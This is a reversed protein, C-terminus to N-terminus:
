GGLAAAKVRAEEWLAVTQLLMRAEARDDTVATFDPLVQCCWRGDAFKWMVLHHGTCSWAELELKAGPHRTWNLLPAELELAVEITVGIDLQSGRPQMLRLVTAIYHKRLFKGDVLDCENLGDSM